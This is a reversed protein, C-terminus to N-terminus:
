FLAFRRRYILYREYDVYTDIDFLPPMLFYPVDRLRDLTEKLLNPTEFPLDDFLIYQREYITSNMGLIVYGGDDSPIIVVPYEVLRRLCEDLHQDEIFPCDAGLLM